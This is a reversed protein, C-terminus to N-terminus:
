KLTFEVYTRGESHSRWTRYSLNSPFDSTESFRRFEAAVSNTIDSNETTKQGFQLTYDGSFTADLRLLKGKPQMSQTMWEDPTTLAVTLYAKDEFSIKDKLKYVSDKLYKKPTQETNSTIQTRQQAPAATLVFLLSLLILAVRITM